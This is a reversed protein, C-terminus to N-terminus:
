SRSGRFCRIGLLYAAVCVAAYVGYVVAAKAFPADPFLAPLAGFSAVGSVSFPKIEALGIKESLFPLFVFAAGFAFSPFFRKAALSVGAAFLVFLMSACFRAALAAACYWFVSIGRSAGFQSLSQLPYSLGPLHYASTFVVADAATNLAFVVAAFVLCALTESLALKRGGSATAATVGYAGCERDWCFFSTVALLAAFFFVYDFDAGFAKNWGTDYILVAGETGVCRLANERVHSIAPYKYSALIVNRRMAAYEEQPLTVPISKLSMDNFRKQESYEKEIEELKENTVTGAYVGSYFKYYTDVPDNTQTYVFLSAVIRVALAAAIILVGHKKIFLKKLEAGFLTNPFFTKAIVKKTKRIHAAGAARPLLVYAATFVLFLVAILSIWVFCKPVPNGFVNAASYKGFASAPSMLLNMVGSGSFATDAGILAGCVAASAAFSGTFRYAALAASAVFFACLTRAAFVFFLMQLISCDFPAIIFTELAHISTFPSSFGSDFFIVALPVATFLVNACLVAAASVGAKAFLTGRRGLASANIVRDAGFQRDLSAFRACAIAAFVLMFIGIFDCNFFLDWGHVYEYKLEVSGLETYIRLSESQARYVYSDPSLGVYDYEKLNQKANNVLTSLYSRFRNGYENAERALRFAAVEAAAAAADGASAAASEKGYVLQYYRASLEQERSEFEEYNNEYLNFAKEAAAADVRTESRLNFVVFGAEVALMFALLCVLARDKILKKLEFGFIRM